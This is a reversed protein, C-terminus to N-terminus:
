RRAGLSGGVVLLRLPGDRGAFRQTPRRAARRDDDRVPNGVWEVRKAHKGRLAQPFASCCATPATALVRNALGAVANPEHLVLPKGRLSAMMGGPFSAFGGFGLVVDPRAAASSACRRGARPSCRSRGLLLTRLGKGRM